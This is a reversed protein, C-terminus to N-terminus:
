ISTYNVKKHPVEWPNLGLLFNNLAKMNVSFTEAELHYPWKYKEQELCKYWLAFGNKDWYLAKIKNRHQNCFLFLYKQFPDLKMEDQVISALCKTGKRFDVYPRFIFIQDFNKLVLM